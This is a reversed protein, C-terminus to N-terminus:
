CFPCEAAATTMWDYNQLDSRSRYDVGKCQRTLYHGDKKYHYVVTDIRRLLQYLKDYKKNQVCMDYIEDPALPSTIYVRDWLTYSDCFRAHSSAVEPSLFGLLKSYALQGRYEDMFLISQAQYNDLFGNDYERIFYINKVDVYKLLQNYIYTKGSGSEGFHWEVSVDRYTGVDKRKKAMYAARIYKEQRYYAIDSDLIEDPTMGADIMKKAEYLDVRQGQRGAIDGHQFKAIITEGKEAYIGVKNIYDEAQKKNGKTPEIHITSFLNKIQMFRVPVSDEFVAHIHELGDASVCLTLASVRTKSQGIFTYAITQLLEDNDSINFGHERPNNFVCFWSRSQEKDM